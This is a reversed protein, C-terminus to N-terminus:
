ASSPMVPHLHGEGAAGAEAERALGSKRVIRPRIRRGQGDATELRRRRDMLKLFIADERAQLENPNLDKFM